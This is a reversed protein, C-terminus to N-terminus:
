YGYKLNGVYLESLNDEVIENEIEDIEVSTINYCTSIYVGVAAYRMM